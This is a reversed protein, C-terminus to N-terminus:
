FLVCVLDSLGISLVPFMWNVCSSSVFLAILKRSMFMVCLASPMLIFICLFGIWVSWYRNYVESCGMVWLSDTTLVSKSLVVIVISLCSLCSSSSWMSLAGFSHPYGFQAILFPLCCTISFSFFVVDLSFLLSCSSPTLHSHHGSLGGVFEELGVTKHCLPLHKYLNMYMTLFM